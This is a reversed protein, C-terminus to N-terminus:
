TRKMKYRYFERFLMILLMQCEPKWIRVDVANILYKLLTSSNKHSFCDTILLFFLHNLKNQVDQKYVTNNM